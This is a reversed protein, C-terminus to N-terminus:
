RDPPINYYDLLFGAIEDFPSTLTESAYKAGKPYVQYLFVIFKPNYAPFYGFFSHLYRDSYYGGNVHDAIQATGTKAAVTYHERKIAGQKLATDVVTVLMTTVDEVTQKKLFPGTRVADITKSTGDDYEVKTVLRPTILYGGNALVSLARTMQIPSLAIGQGYSATAVDIDKPNKLNGVLGSAENPLDIGSKFGIGYSSFYSYM